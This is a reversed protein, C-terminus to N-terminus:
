PSIGGLCHPGCWLIHTQYKDTLLRGTYVIPVKVQFTSGKAAALQLFQPCVCKSMLDSSFAQPFKTNLLKYQHAEIGGGGVFVKTKGSVAEIQICVKPNKKIENSIEVKIENGTKKVKRKGNM